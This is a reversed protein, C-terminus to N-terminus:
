YFLTSWIVTVLLRGFIGRKGRRWNRKAVEFASRMDCHSSYLAALQYSAFGIM